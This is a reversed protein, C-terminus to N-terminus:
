SPRRAPDAGVHSHAADVGARAGAAARDGTDTRTQRDLDNLNQQIRIVV